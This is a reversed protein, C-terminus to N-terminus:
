PIQINLISGKKINPYDQQPLLIIVPQKAETQLSIELYADQRVQINTVIGSIGKKPLSDSYGTIKGKQLHLIRDSMRVIEEHNHSVLLTSLEFQQHITMIFDQLQNRMDSDLASLPEDLLLIAPKRVLARALAVRQKQGGSLTAPYQSLIHELQMVSIIQDLYAKEEKNDQAFQLNQRVTMNPFVVYDQFVLGAKRKQPPLFVKKESHLWLQDNCSITGAVKKELGAIIRLLTTKGSGSPGSIGLLEGKQIELNVDLDFSHKEFGLKKKIQIQMM